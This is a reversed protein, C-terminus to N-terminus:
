TAHHSERGGGHSTAMTAKASTAIPAAPAGAWVDCAADPRLIGLAKGGKTNLDDICEQTQPALLTTSCQGEDAETVAWPRHQM